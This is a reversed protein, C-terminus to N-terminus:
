PALSTDTSSTATLRSGTSCRTSRASRSRAGSNSAGPSIAAQLEAIPPVGSADAHVRLEGLRALEAFMRLPENNTRLMDVHPRFGIVWGPSGGFFEPSGDVTPKSALLQHIEDSLAAIRAADVPVKAQTAEIMERMCDVSQLLLQVADPTVPRQGNRMEDLLTEVGHTFKSVDAFGFTAAGGKISHAARFITNITERDASVDLNLLSSEMADLGEFSEEFFIRCIEEMELDLSM